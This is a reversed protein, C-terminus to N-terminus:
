NATLSFHPTKKGGIKQKTANHIQLNKYISRMLTLGQKRKLLGNSAFLERPKQIVFCGRNKTHM